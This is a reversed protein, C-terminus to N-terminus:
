YKIHNPLFPTYVFPDDKSWNDWKPVANERASDQEDINKARIRGFGRPDQNDLCVGIEIIKM